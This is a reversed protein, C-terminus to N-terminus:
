EMSARGAAAANSLTEPNGGADLYAGVLKGDFGMLKAFRQHAGSGPRRPNETTLMKIRRDRDLTIEKKSKGAKRDGRMQQRITRAEQVKRDDFPVTPEVAVMRAHEVITASEKRKGSEALAQAEELSKEFGLYMGERYALYAKGGKGGSLLRVRGGVTDPLPSDAYWNFRDNPNGDMQYWPGLGTKGRKPKSPPPPATKKAMMFDDRKM